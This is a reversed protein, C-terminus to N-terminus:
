SIDGIKRELATVKGVTRTCRQQPQQVRQLFQDISKSSIDGIKRELASVRYHFQDISKSPNVKLPDTWKNQIM